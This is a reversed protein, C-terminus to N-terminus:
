MNNEVWEARIGTFPQMALTLVAQRKRDKIHFGKTYHWVRLFEKAAYKRGSWRPYEM